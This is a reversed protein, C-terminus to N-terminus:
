AMDDYSRDKSFLISDEPRLPKVIVYRAVFDGLVGLLDLRSEFWKEFEKTEEDHCEHVDEKGHHVITTRSRYGSDDPPRPNSTIFL